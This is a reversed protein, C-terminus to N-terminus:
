HGISEDIKLDAAITDPGLDQGNPWGIGAFFLSVQEFYNPSKLEAFFDSQMYPNVDFVGCQGDQMEIHLFGGPMPRVKVVKNM